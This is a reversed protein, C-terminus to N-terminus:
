YSDKLELADAVVISVGAAVAARLAVQLEAVTPRRLRTTIAHAFARPSFPNQPM